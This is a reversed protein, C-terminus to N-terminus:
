GLHKQPEYHREKVAQALVRQESDTGDCGRGIEREKEDEKGKMERGEGARKRGLYRHPGAEGRLLLKVWLCVAKCATIVVGFQWVNFPGHKM